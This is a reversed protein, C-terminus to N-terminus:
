VIDLWMLSSSSSIFLFPNSVMEDDYKYTPTPKSPLLDVFDEPITPRIREYYALRVLRELVDSVFRRRLQNGGQPPPPPASSSSSSSTTTTTPLADDSLIYDWNSRNKDYMLMGVEETRGDGMEKGVRKERREGGRREEEGRRGEERIGHGNTTSIQYICVFGSLSALSASPTWRTWDTSYTRLQRLSSTSNNFLSPLLSSPPLTPPFLLSPLPPLHPPVLLCSLVYWLFSPNNSRSFTSSSCLTTSKKSPRSRCCSSNPSSRKM